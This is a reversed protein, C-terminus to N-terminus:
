KQLMSLSHNIANGDILAASTRYICMMHRILQQTHTDRIIQYASTCGCINNMVLDVFVCAGGGGVVVVEM